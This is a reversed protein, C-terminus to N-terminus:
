SSSPAQRPYNTSISLSADVIKQLNIVRDWVYINNELPEAHIYDNRNKLLRNYDYLLRKSSFSQISM